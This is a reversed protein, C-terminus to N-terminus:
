RPQTPGPPRRSRTRKWGDRIKPRRSFKEQMEWLKHIEISVQFGVLTNQLSAKEIPDKENKIAKRLASIQSKLEAVSEKDLKGIRYPAM